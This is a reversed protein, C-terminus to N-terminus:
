PSGRRIKALAEAAARSVDEDQDEDGALAELAPIADRADPGIEGLAWAATARPYWDDEEGIAQLLRSVSARGIRALTRAAALSSETWLLDAIMPVADKAKPGMEAAAQLSDPLADPSWDQAISRAIYPLLRESERTIRWLALAAQGVLSEDPSALSRTLEPIAEHAAPGFRGLAHVADVRIACEEDVVLKRLTPICRVCGLDGLARAVAGRVNSNFTNMMVEELAAALAEDGRGIQALARAASIRVNEYESKDKLIGLIRPIAIRAAPGILALVEISHAGPLGSVLEPTAASAEPCTAPVDPVLARIVLLASQASERLRPDEERFALNVLAPIVREARSGLLPVIEVAKKRLEIEPDGLEGLLAPVVFGAKPGVIELVGLAELRLTADDSRLADLVAPRISRWTPDFRSLLHAAHLRAPLFTEKELHAKVRMLTEELDRDGHSEMCRLAAARVIPDPHDLCEAFVTIDEPTPFFFDLDPKEKLVASIAPSGIAFLISQLEGPEGPHVLYLRVLEPIARRSRMEGLKRAADLREEPESSGLKHIWWGEAIWGRGAIAATVLVAMALAACALAVRKGIGRRRAGMGGM